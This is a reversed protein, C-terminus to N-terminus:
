LAPLTGLRFTEILDEIERIKFPKYVIKFFMPFNTLNLEGTILIKPISDPMEGAVKDGTTGPLRYDLFILDVHETNVYDIAQIPVVFTVIELLNTEFTEKFIECIASEDDLCVIRFKMNRHRQHGNM